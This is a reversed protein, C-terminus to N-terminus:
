RWHNGWETGPMREAVPPLNSTSGARRRRSAPKILEEQPATLRLRGAVSQFTGPETPTGVLPATSLAMWVMECVVDTLLESEITDETVGWQALRRRVIRSAAALLEEARAETESDSLDLPYRGGLESTTGFPEM